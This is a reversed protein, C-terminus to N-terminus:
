FLRVPKDFGKIFFVSLSPNKLPCEHLGRETKYNRTLNRNYKFKVKTDRKTKEKHRNISQKPVFNFLSVIVMGDKEKNVTVM